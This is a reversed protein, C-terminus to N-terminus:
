VSGGRIRDYGFRFSAAAAAAANRGTGLPKINEFGDVVPFVSDVFIGCVAIAAPSADNGAREADYPLPAVAFKEGM